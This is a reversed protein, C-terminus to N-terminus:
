RRIEQITKMKDREKSDYVVRGDCIVQRIDDPGLGTHQRGAITGAIQRVQNIFSDKLQAESIPMHDPNTDIFKGKPAFSTGEPWYFGKIGEKANAKFSFTEPKKYVVIFENHPINEQTILEQIITEELHNRIVEPHDKEDKIVSIM